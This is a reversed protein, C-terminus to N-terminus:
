FFIERLILVSSFDLKTCKRLSVFNENAFILIGLFAKVNILGEETVFIEVSFSVNCLYGSPM